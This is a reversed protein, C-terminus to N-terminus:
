MLNNVNKKKLLDFTASHTNLTAIGWIAPIHQYSSATATAIKNKRLSM